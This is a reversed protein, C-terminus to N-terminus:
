KAATGDVLVSVRKIIKQPLVKDKSFLKQENLLKEWYGLADIFLRVASQRKARDVISLSMVLDGPQANGAGDIAEHWEVIAKIDADPKKKRMHKSANAIERCVHLARCDKAVADQFRELGKEIGSPTENYEVRYLAAM